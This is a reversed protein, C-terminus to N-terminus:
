PFSRVQPQFASEQRLSGPVVDDRDPVPRCCPRTLARSKTSDRIREGNLYTRLSHWYLGSTQTLAGLRRRTSTSAM